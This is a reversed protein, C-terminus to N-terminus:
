PAAHTLMLGGASTLFDTFPYKDCDDRGSKGEVAAQSVFCQQGCENLHFIYIKLTVWENEM